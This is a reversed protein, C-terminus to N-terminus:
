RVISKLSMAFKLFPPLDNRKLSFYKVEDAGLDTYFNKTVENSSPGFDLYKKQHANFQIVKDMLFVLAESGQNQSSSTPLLSIVRQPHNILFNAAVMKDNEFVALLTGMNYSLSKYILRLLTFKDKYKFNKINRPSNNVYFDVFAEPKIQTNLLLERKIGLDIINKLEDSYKSAIDEYSNDLPLLYNSLSEVEFNDPAVNSENLTMEVCKYETPIVSFFANISEKSLPVDSFVGLQRTIEPQSICDMGWKKHIILPMVKQYDGSVIGVWDDAVNDLYWTYAYPVAGLAFHVCGNWLKDEIENRQMLRVQMM